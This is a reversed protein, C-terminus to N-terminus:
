LERNLIARNAHDITDAEDQDMDSMIDSLNTAIESRMHAVLETGKRTIRVMIKRRDEAAHVREVYDLGELRDM